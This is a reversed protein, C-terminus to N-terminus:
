NGQLVHDGGSRVQQSSHFRADGWRGATEPPQTDTGTPPEEQTGQVLQNAENKIREAEAAAEPTVAVLQPAAPEAVAATSM